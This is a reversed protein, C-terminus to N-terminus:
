LKLLKIWTNDPIGFQRIFTGVTTQTLKRVTHLLTPNIVMVTTYLTVSVLDTAGLVTRAHLVTWITAFIAVIADTDFWVFIGIKENTM